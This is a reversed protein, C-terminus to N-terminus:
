QALPANLRDDEVGAVLPSAALADREKRPIVLAVLPLTDYTRVVRYGVDLTALFRERAARVAQKYSEDDPRAGAPPEFRLRVIVQMREADNTVPADEKPVARPEVPVDCAALGTLWGAALAAVIGARGRM